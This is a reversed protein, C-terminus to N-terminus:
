EFQRRYQRPTLGQLQKFLRTFYYRDCFGTEESVQKISRQPDHLLACAKEIRKQRLYAQPSMGLERQYRRLMANVSMGLHRAIEKNSVSQRIHAEIFAMNEALQAPLRLSKLDEKPIRALLSNILGRVLLTSCTTCNSTSETEDLPVSKITKLMHPEAKFIYIKPNLRDFPADAFFHVFFQQPVGCNLRQSISTNPPVLVIRDPTLEVSQQRHNIRAGPKSNWYLRWFSVKLDDNHWKPLPKRNIILIRINPDYYPQMFTFYYVFCTNRDM